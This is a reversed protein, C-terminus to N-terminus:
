NNLKNSSQFLFYVICFSKRKVERKTKEKKELAWFFLRSNHYLWGALSQFSANGTPFPRNPAIIKPLGSVSSICNFSSVKHVPPGTSLFGFGSAGFYKCGTPSASKLSLM